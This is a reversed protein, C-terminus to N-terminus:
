LIPNEHFNWHFELKVSIYFSRKRENGFDIVLDNDLGSYYSSGGFLSSFFM